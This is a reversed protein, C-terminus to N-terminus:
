ADATADVRAAARLKSVRYAALVGRGLIFCGVLKYILYGGFGYSALFICYALYIASAVLTAPLPARKVWWALAVHAGFMGAGVGAIAWCIPATLIAAGAIQGLMAFVALPFILYITGAWLIMRRASDLAPQHFLEIEIELDSKDSPTPQM